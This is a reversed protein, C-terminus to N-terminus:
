LTDYPEMLDTGSSRRKCFHLKGRDQNQVLQAELPSALLFLLYISNHFRSPHPKAHTM